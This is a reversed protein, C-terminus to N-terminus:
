ALNPLIEFDAIDSWWEDAGSTVHVQWRWSGVMDFEGTLGVYQAIADTEPGFFTGVRLFSTEDPRAFIAELTSDILGPVAVGNEVLAMRHILGVTGTRFTNTM